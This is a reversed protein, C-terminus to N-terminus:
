ADTIGIKSFFQFQPDTAATSDSTLIMYINNSCNSSSTLYDQKYNLQRRILRYVQEPNGGAAALCIVEDYLITYMDEGDELFVSTLALPATVTKYVAAASAGVYAINPKWRFITVRVVNTSDAVSVLFRMELNKLICEDGLHQGGTTGQSTNSLSYVGPTTTVSYTNSVNAYKVEENRKILRKVYSQTAVTPKARKAYRKKFGSTMTSTARARKM